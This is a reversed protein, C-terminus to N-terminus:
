HNHGAHPDHPAMDALSGNWIEWKQRCEVVEMRVRRSCSEVLARACQIIIPAKYPAAVNTYKFMTLSDLFTWLVLKLDEPPSQNLLTMCRAFISDMHVNLHEGGTAKVLDAVIKFVGLAVDPDETALSQMLLPVIAEMDYSYVDEPLKMLLLILVPPSATTKLMQFVRQKWVPRMTWNVMPVSGNSFTVSIDPDEKRYVVELAVEMDRTHEPIEQFLIRLITKSTQIDSEALLSVANNIASTDNKLVMGRLLWVTLDKDNNIFKSVDSWALYKNAINTCSSLYILRLIGQSPISAIVMGLLQEFDLGCYTKPLSQVIFLKLTLDECSAILNTLADESLSIALRRLIQGVYFVVLPDDRPIAYLTPSFKTFQDLATSLDLRNLLRLVTNLIDLTPNEQLSATSLLRITLSNVLSPTSILDVITNLYTVNGKSRALLPSFVDNLLLNDFRPFTALKSISEVITKHVLSKSESSILLDSLTKLLFQREDVLFGQILLFQVTSQCAMALLTSEEQSVCLASHLIAFIETQYKLFHSQNLNSFYTLSVLIQKKSSIRDFDQSVMAHLTQDVISPDVVFSLLLCSQNFKGPSATANLNKKLDDYVLLLLDSTTAREFLLQLVTLTKGFVIDADNSSGLYYQLISKQGVIHALDFNLVEYKLTNWLKVFHTQMVDAPFTQTATSITELIDLKTAPSSTTNFKDILNIFLDNAFLPSSTLARNLSKKLSKIQTVQTDNSSKFSIPYYKFVCDFLDNIDDTINIQSGTIKDLATFLLMLNKPDKENQSVCLFFKVYSPHEEIKPLAIALQLPLARIAATYQRPSYGELFQRLMEDNPQYQDMKVLTVMAAFVNALVATDDNLKSLLFALLVQIDKAYLFKGPLAELVTALMLFARSRVGVSNNTVYLQSARILDLFTATKAELMAVIPGVDQSTETTYANVAEQLSM